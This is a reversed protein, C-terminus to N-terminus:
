DSAQEDEVEEDSEEEDDEDQGRKSRVNATSDGYGRLRSREARKEARTVEEESSPLATWKQQAGYKAMCSKDERIDWVAVKGKDGGCALVSSSDRAWSSAWIQGVKMEKESVLTPRMEGDDTMTVDWLKLIKDNGATMFLTPIVPNFSAHTCAGAHADLRFVAELPKRADFASVMGSESAVIFFNGNHPHWRVSEVDADVKWVRSGATVRVDIMHVTKDYAGTLLLNPESPHWDISQVKHSANLMAAEEFWSEDDVVKGKKKKSSKPQVPNVLKKHHDLTRTCQQTSVDWLKVTEDASGSALRERHAPHWALCLIAETHSDAKLAPQSKKSKKTSQSTSQDDLGGLVAVPELADMVDLNWIEIQPLFTGVALFNGMRDATQNTQTSSQSTSPEASLDRPDYDMYAACLPFSPLQFDHHVFLNGTTQDFIMSEIASQDGEETRGIMLCFDSQKISQDDDDSDDDDSDPITMFPDETNSQYVTLSQGGLFMEEGEPEDDYDDMKLEDILADATADPQDSVEATEDTPETPEATEDDDNMEADSDNEVRNALREFAAAEEDDSDDSDESFEDSQDDTKSIRMSQQKEILDELEAPGVDFHVPNAALRGRPIFHVVSIM